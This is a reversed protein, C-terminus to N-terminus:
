VKQLVSYVTEVEGRNKAEQAETGDSAGHPGEVLGYTTDARHDQRGSVADVNEYAVESQGSM